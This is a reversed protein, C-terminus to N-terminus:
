PNVIYMARRAFHKRGLSDIVCLSAQCQMPNKYKHVPSSGWGETGDGFNWQYEVPSADSISVSPTFTINTNTNTYRATTTYTNPGAAYSVLAGVPSTTFSIDVNKQKLPSSISPLSPTILAGSTAWFSFAGKDTTAM